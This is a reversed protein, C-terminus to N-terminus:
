KKMGLEEVYRAIQQREEAGFPQFPEALADSCIGMCSLACKLGRLYSSYAGVCYIKSSIEMVEEHLSNIKPLDKSFAANYLDVYLQPKMNAGGNVGGHGGLLITEALLEEPGVILTFEPKDKLLMQVKHFYFMNASSDKLGVIGPIDAAARVTKPEFVLKTHGPMNYLFVPLPLEPALDELYQLIEPQAAPFYPPHALVLAQAGADKAKCAVDVSKAFATDTIGVLVPVRGAVQACTREIMENRLGYSLSPGEGTTGLIFLANVGGALLHEILRELGEADLTDRDLLPTIMPVVIGRLPTPLVNSKSSDSKM